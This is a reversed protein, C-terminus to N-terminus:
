GPVQCKTLSYAVLVVAVARFVFSWGDFTFAPAPGGAGHRPLSDRRPMETEKKARYMLNMLWCCYFPVGARLLVRSARECLGRM